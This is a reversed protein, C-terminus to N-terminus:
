TNTTFFGNTGFIKGLFVHSPKAPDIMKVTMPQHRAKLYMMSICQHIPMMTPRIITKVAVQPSKISLAMFRSKLKFSIPVKNGPCPPINSRKSETTKDDGAIHSARSSTFCKKHAAFQRLDVKNKILRNLALFSRLM